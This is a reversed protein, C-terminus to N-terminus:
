GPVAYGRAALWAGWGDEIEKVQDATLTDRWAGHRGDTVHDPLLLNVADLGYETARAPDHRLAAIEAAITALDLGAPDLGLAAAVRGLEAVPDAILDEYRMDHGARAEWFDHRQLVEPLLSHAGPESPKAGFKRYHSAVVDRLDRHCTLAVDAQAALEEDVHHLKVVCDAAALLAAREPWAGAAPSRGARELLLRAANFLWTSGARAMGTVLCIM